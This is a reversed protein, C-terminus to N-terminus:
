AVERWAAIAAECAVTCGVAAEVMRLQGLVPRMARKFVAGYETFELKHGARRQKAYIPRFYALTVLSDQGKYRNRCAMRGEEGHWPHLDDRGAESQIVGTEDCTLCTYDPAYDDVDLREGGTRGWGDCDPCLYTRRWATTSLGNM